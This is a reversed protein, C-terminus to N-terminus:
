TSETGTHTDSADLSGDNLMTQAARRLDQSERALEDSLAASEKAAREIQDMIEDVAPQVGKSTSRIWAAKRCFSPLSKTISELVETAKTSHSEIAQILSEVIAKDHDDTDHNRTPREVIQRLASAKECLKGTEAAYQAWFGLLERLDEQLIDSVQLGSLAIDTQRIATEIDMQGLALQRRITVLAGLVPVSSGMGALIRLLHYLVLSLGAIRIDDPSIATSSNVLSIACGTALVGYVAVDVLSGRRLLVSTSLAMPLAVPRYTIVFLLCLGLALVGHAAWIVLALFLPIRTRVLSTIVIIVVSYAVRLLLVVRVPSPTRHSLTFRTAQARGSPQASSRLAISLTSVAGVSFSGLLVLVGVNAWHFAGQEITDLLLWAIAGIAGLLAWGTWGPRESESRVYQIENDLLALVRGVDHREGQDAVGEVRNGERDGLVSSV